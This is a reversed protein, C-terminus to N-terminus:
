YKVKLFATGQLLGLFATKVHIKRTFFYYQCYGAADRRVFRGLQHALHYFGPSLHSDNGRGRGFFEDAWQRQSRHRFIRQVAIYAIAGGPIVM